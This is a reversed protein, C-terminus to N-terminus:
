LVFRRPTPNVKARLPRSFPTFSPNFQLDIERLTNLTNYCYINNGFYVVIDKSYGLIMMQIM